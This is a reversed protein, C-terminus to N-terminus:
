TYVAHAPLVRLVRGRQVVRVQHRVVRPRTLGAAELEKIFANVSAVSMGIAKALTAQGPFCLNNHWAYSVFLSYTTKAGISLGPNKLIFNPVQTLGHLAIPDASNIKINQEVRQPHGGIHDM